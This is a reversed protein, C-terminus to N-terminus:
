VHEIVRLKASRSRPNLNIETESPSVPRKTIIKFDSGSGKERFKRKVIRDELSHFSIIQLRAGRNLFGFIKSLFTKLGELEGNVEMRIAQFFRTAPNIKGRYNFNKLIIETLEKCTEINKKKRETIISKIVRNPMRIEGYEKFIRQLELFDYSNVIHYATLEQERDMRMDLLDDSDFSFGRSKDDIHFSSIGLDVLAGDIHFDIFKDFESFDCKLFKVREGFVSLNEKAKEIAYIDKDFAIIEVNPYESLISFSHGGGGITFDCIIKKKTGIYKFNETVEKLLVPIHKLKCVWNPSLIAQLFFKWLNKM